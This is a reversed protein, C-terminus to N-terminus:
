LKKFEIRWVWPNDSWSDIGNIATWLLRFCDKATQAMAVDGAFWFGSDDDFKVGERIADEETIDHLREVQKSQILLKLRCAARPMFISPRKDWGIGDNRSENIENPPNDMYRYEGYQLTADNFKWKGDLLCWYGYAYFTERVWLIDGEKGYGQGLPYVWDRDEDYALWEPGHIGDGEDPDEECWDNYILKIPGKEAILDLTDIASKDTIVRRTVTKRGEIIAKVMPTSFLIPREKVQTTTEM